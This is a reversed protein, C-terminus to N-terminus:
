VTPGQQNDIKFIATHVHWDWVGWNDRGGVRGSQCGDTQERYRHSQKQKTQENTKSKLNWMYIINYLIQRERDLNNWKAYYWRPGYM